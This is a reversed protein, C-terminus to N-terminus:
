GRSSEHFLKRAEPGTTPRRGAADIHMVIGRGASIETEVIRADNRGSV